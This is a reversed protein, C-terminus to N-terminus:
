PVENLIPMAPQYATMPAEISLEQALAVLDLRQLLETTIPRKSDWFVFASFFERAIRSNLMGAIAVAEAQTQCPMFYCTDDLMVPKGSSPGVAVFNMDKYFGSIVVKWPAFSYEGVGFISFKPRNRYIASARRQLLESHSELYEWTKPARQMILSTDEGVFRQPVLMLRFPRPDSGKAIDSSKFMPYLYDSELSVSEGLGNRCEGNLEQLEMIKSCDHKIGSRWTQRRNGELHRWTQYAEADALLRGNDYKMVTPTSHESLSDFIRCERSKSTSSAVVVLLCADVAAGFHAASDIRYIDAQALPMRTKWAHYLTKRAVVTKCLMAIVAQKGAIWGLAKLLMWESIDFNSKGTIADIGRHNQFNVKEPSNSGDLISLTANTVWPPNGIVLLPEPLSDVVRSWDANFFDEQRIEADCNGSVAQVATQARAIHEPNIDIGVAKKIGPFAQLAAALFNGKGCTPELVSCPAVGKEALMSCVERALQPPTQFDGFEQIRRSKATM